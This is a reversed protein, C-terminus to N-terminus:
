NTFQFMGIVSEQSGKRTRDFLAIGGPRLVREIENVARKDSKPELHQLVDFCTIVDFTEDEFPLDLISGRLPHDRKALAIAHPSPDVGIPAYDRSAQDVALADGRAAASTSRSCTKEGASRMTLGTPRSRGFWAVM